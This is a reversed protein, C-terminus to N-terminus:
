GILAEIDDVVAPRGAIVRKAIAAVKPLDPHLHIWQGTDPSFHAKFWRDLRPNETDVSLDVRRCEDDFRADDVIPDSLVEYAYAWVAVNIRRKREVELPSGWATM